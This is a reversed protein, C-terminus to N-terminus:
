KGSPGRLRRAGVFAIILGIVLVVPGILAWLSNGSMASGGIVGPGQLGWLCGLAALVVGITLPIWPKV